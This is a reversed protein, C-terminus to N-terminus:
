HIRIRAKTIACFINLPPHYEDGKVVPETKKVNLTKFNNFILDLISNNFDNSIQNAQFFRYRQFINPVCSGITKSKEFYINDNFNPWLYIFEPLNYDGIFIFNHDPYKKIFKENLIMHYEYVDRIRKPIYVNSIIFNASGIICKVFLQEIYIDIIELNEINKNIEVIPLEYSYIDKRVGILVGGVKSVGSQNRDFIYVNYKDLGLDDNSDKDSLWTETLVLFIYKFDEVNKQFSQLKNKISHCNQYFGFDLINM